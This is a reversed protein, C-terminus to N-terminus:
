VKTWETATECWTAVFEFYSDHHRNKIKPIGRDKGHPCRMRTAYARAHGPEPYPKSYKFLDEDTTYDTYQNVARYVEKM